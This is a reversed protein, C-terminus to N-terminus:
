RTLRGPRPHSVAEKWREYEEDGMQVWDNGGPINGDDYVFLSGKPVQFASMVRVLDSFCDPCQVISERFIKKCKKCHMGWAHAVQFGKGM